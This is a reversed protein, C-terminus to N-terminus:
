KMYIDKKLDGYPFAIKMYLRKLYLDKVNIIGLILKTITAEGNFFLYIYTISIKNKSFDKPGNWYKSIVKCQGCM